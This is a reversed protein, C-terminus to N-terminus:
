LERNVPVSHGIRASVRLREEALGSYILRTVRTARYVNKFEAVVLEEDM